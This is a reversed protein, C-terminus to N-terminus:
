APDPSFRPLTLISSYDDYLQERTSIETPPWFEGAFIAAAVSEAKELASQYIADDWRTIKFGNKEADRSLVVYGVGLKEKSPDSTRLMWYYMPLQLDIWETKKRLHTEEPSLGTDSSKYDLLMWREEGPHYDLRDFRGRITVDGSDLEL